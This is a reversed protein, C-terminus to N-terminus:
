TATYRTAVGVAQPNRITIGYWTFLRFSFGMTTINGDYVMYMEQGNKMTSNIVRKGAFQRFYEAPIAGGIVEVAGRDWFVNSKVSADINLRTMVAGNLIRTNVNGYAKELTSLGPDDIAIPKPFVTVSTGSPKGVVTFTMPQNTNTKDDLGVAFVPTSGNVFMVKDGINYASTDAVAITATRYDVNTVVGTIANVSGGEPKFSQNGTVTTDPSAGGALNPLFSGTYVDFEAVNAGIQGTNWTQAPRGQVTQRAALDGSFTLTDRDNILFYRRDAMAQRENLIAQGQAVFNYGSVAPSRYYLSGQTVMANVIASNLNSAQRRGSARGRDEWFKTDRVDDARQTVFDNSPTGLVAPYTEEIIGTALGTLDWGAIIPASQQVTRWVFNNSNQMQGPEPTFHDVKDLLLDQTEFTEIANEFLVEAIKGTSLTAM